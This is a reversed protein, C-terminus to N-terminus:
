RGATRFINIPFIAKVGNGDYISIKGNRAGFVYHDGTFSTRNKANIIDGQSPVQIIARGDITGSPHSHFTSVPTKMRLLDDPNQYDTLYIRAEDDGSKYEQGPNAWAVYPNGQTDEFISGGYERYPNAADMEMVTSMEARISLSPLQIASSVSNVDTTNGKRENGQITKVDNIDPVVYVKGDDIGDTGIYNGKQDYFDGLEAEMGTPDVYKLPNNACYAYPSLTPHKEFLPDRSIFTPPNYYRASYYYMGNEEDLEKANFLDNCM